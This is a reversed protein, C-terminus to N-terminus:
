GVSRINNSEVANRRSERALRRQAKKAHSFLIYTLFLVVIEAMFWLSYYTSVAGTTMVTQYGHFGANAAVNVLFLGFLATDSFHLDEEHIAVEDAAEEEAFLTPGALRLFAAGAFGVDVVMKGLFLASITGVNSAMAGWDQFILLAACYVIIALYLTNKSLKM